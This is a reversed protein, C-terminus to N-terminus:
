SSLEGDFYKNEPEHVMYDLTLIPNIKSKLM